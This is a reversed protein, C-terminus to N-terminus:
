ANYIEARSYNLLIVMVYVFSVADYNKRAFMLCWRCVCESRFPQRGNSCVTTGPPTSYDPACLDWEVTSPGALAWLSIREAVRRATPKRWQWTNFLFCSKSYATRQQQCATSDYWPSYTRVLPGPLPVITNKRDPVPNEGSDCRVFDFKM